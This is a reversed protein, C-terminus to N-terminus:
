GISKLMQIGQTFLAEAQEDTAADKVLYKFRLRLARISTLAYMFMDAEQLIDDAAQRPTWNRADAWSQVVVPVPDSYSSAQYQRAGDAAAQYEFAKLSDGGVIRSRQADAVVDIRQIMEERTM